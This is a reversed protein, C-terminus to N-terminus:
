FEGTTTFGKGQGPSSDLPPSTRSEAPFDGQSRHLPVQMGPPEESSTQLSSVVTTKVEGYLIVGTLGQWSMQVRCHCSVTSGLWVFKGSHGTRHLLRSSPFWHQESLGALSLQCLVLLQSCHQGELCRGPRRMAMTRTLQVGWLSLWENEQKLKVASKLREM